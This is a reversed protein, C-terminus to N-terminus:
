MFVALRVQFITMYGVEATGTVRGRGVNVYARVHEQLYWNFGGMLMNLRGGQVDHNTLNTYSYRCALEFAGWDGGKGWRFSRKPTVLPFRATAPDYPRSEGTLFWSASAYWGGFNLSGGQEPSVFSHLIESQLSFPGNVWAAEAGLTVARSASINGTDIVYPAIYSEPRSQYRITSATFLFDGSLGVHLFRPVHGSGRLPLWTLRGIASGYSSAVLGYESGGAGNAFAGLWWTARDHLVPRGVQVGAETGPALAQLPAAPEMFTIAWSSNLVDLGQPPQFQGLQVSGTYAVAPFLLWAESLVFKNPVYGLDLKYQVPLLLTWNGEFNLRARRLEAGDDFGTLNGSTKFVAADGALKVGIASTLAVEEVNIIPKSVLGEPGFLHPRPPAKLPTKQVLQLWLGDWGRWSVEWHSTKEAKAASTGSEAAAAAQKPPEDGAVPPAPLLGLSVVFLVAQGPLRVLSTRSAAGPDRGSV